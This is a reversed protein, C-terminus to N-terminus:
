YVISISYQQTGCKIEINLNKFIDFILYQLTLKISPIILIPMLTYIFILSISTAISAGIIGYKEILIYNGVLNIIFGLFLICALLIYDFNKFKQFFNFNSQNLRNHIYM